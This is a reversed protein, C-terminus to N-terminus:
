ELYVRRMISSKKNKVDFLEGRRYEYGKYVFGIVGMTAFRKYIRKGNWVVVPQRGDVNQWYNNKDGKFGSWEGIKTRKKDGFFLYTPRLSNLTLAPYIEARDNFTSNNDKNLCSIDIHFTSNSDIKFSFDLDNMNREFKANGQRIEIICNKTLSHELRASDFKGAYSAVVIIPILLLTNM